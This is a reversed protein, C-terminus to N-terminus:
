EGKKDMLLLNEAKIETQYRKIGDKGVYDRYTLKGDIMVESGKRLYQEAIDAPKGWVIVNHWQTETVKEGQANKYVENTALSLKALKNGNEITKVEPDAGLHGILQVRNRLNIM